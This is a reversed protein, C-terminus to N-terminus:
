KLLGGTTAETIRPICNYKIYARQDYFSATLFIFATLLILGLFITGVVTWVSEGEEKIVEVPLQTDM